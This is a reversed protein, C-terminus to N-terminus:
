KKESKRKVEQFWKEWIRTQAEVGQPYPGSVMHLESTGTERNEGILLKETYHFGSRVYDIHLYLNGYVNAVFGTAKEDDWEFNLNVESDNSWNSSFFAEENFKKGLNRVYETETIAKWIKDTSAHIDSHIHVMPAPGLAKVEDDSLLTVERFWASGNGGNPFRYGVVTDVGIVAAQIIIILENLGNQRSHIRAVRPLTIALPRADPYEAPDIYMLSTGNRTEEKTPLRDTVVPIKDLDQIDIPPFGFNDPCYWGGYSHAVHEKPVSAEVENTLDNSNDSVDDQGCSTLTGLGIMLLPLFLKTLSM